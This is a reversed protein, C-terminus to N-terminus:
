GLVHVFVTLMFSHSIGKEEVRLTGASTVRELSAFIPSGYEAVLQHSLLSETSESTVPNM